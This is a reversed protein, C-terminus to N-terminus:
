DGSEVFPEDLVAINFLGLEEFLALAVDRKM